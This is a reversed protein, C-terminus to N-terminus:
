TLHRVEGSWTLLVTFRHGLGLERGDEIPTFRKRRGVTESRHITSLLTPLRQLIGGGHGLQGSEDAGWTYVQPSTLLTSM